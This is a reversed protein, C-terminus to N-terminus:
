LYQTLDHADIHNTSRSHPPSPNLTVVLSRPQGCLFGYPSGVEARVSGPLGQWAEITEIQLYVVLKYQRLCCILRQLQRSHTYRAPRFFACALPRASFLQAPKLVNRQEVACSYFVCRGFPQCVAGLYKLDWFVRITVVFVLHKCKRPM